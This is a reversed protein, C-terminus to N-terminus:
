LHLHLTHNSATATLFLWSSITSNGECPIKVLDLLSQVIGNKHPFIRRYWTIIRVITSVDNDSIILNIIRWNSSTLLHHIGIMRLLSHEESLVAIVARLLIKHRWCLKQHSFKQYAKVLLKRHNRRRYKDDSSAITMKQHIKLYRKLTEWTGM